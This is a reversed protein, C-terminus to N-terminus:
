DDWPAKKYGFKSALEDDWQNKAFMIDFETQSSERLIDTSKQMKHYVKSSAIYYIKLKM